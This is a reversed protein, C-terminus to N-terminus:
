STPPTASSNKACCATSPRFGGGGLAQPMNLAYLGLAKSQLHVARAKEPALAGHQEIEDELPQLQEAIFRRVTDILMKQEDNLAFDM